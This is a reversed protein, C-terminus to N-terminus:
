LVQLSQIIASMSKENEFSQMNRSILGVFAPSLRIVVDRQLPLGDKVLETAVVWYTGSVRNLNKECQAKHIIKQLEQASVWAFQDPEAGISSARSLWGRLLCARQAQMQQLVNKTPLDTVNWFFISYNSNGEFNRLCILGQDKIDQAVVDIACKEFKKNIKGNRNYPKGKVLYTAPVFVLEELAERIAGRLYRSVPVDKKARSSLADIKKGDLQDMTRHGYDGITGAPFEFGQRWSQTQYPDKVVLFELGKQTFRYLALGGGVPLMTAVHLLLFGLLNFHKKM